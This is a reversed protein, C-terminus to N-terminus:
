HVNTGNTDEKIQQTFLTKYCRTCYVMHEKIPPLSGVRIRIGYKPRHGRFFCTLWVSMRDWRPM